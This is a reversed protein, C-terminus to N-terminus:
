GRDDRAALIMEAMQRVAGRGGPPGLVVDVQTRVSEVADAPAFSLGCRKLVPLDPLDDGAFAVQSESVDNRTLFSSFAKDKDKEGTLLLDLGLDIARQHVADDNRGTLLGILIGARQLLKLGQGDKVDFAKWLQGTTGYILRGDTLVGDVDFLAWSLQAARRSFEEGDLRLRAAKGPQSMAPPNM